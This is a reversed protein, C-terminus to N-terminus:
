DYNLTRRPRNSSIVYTRKAPVKIHMMALCAETAAATEFEGIRTRRSVMDKLFKVYNPMKKLAEVLPLNVHINKLIDM